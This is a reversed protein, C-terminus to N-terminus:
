VVSKRDTIPFIAPGFFFGAVFPSWRNATAFMISAAVALIGWSLAIEGTGKRQPDSLVVIGGFAGVLVAFGAVLGVAKLIGGTIQARVPRKDSWEFSETPKTSIPQMLPRIRERMLM